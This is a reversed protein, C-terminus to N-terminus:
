KKFSNPYTNYLEEACDDLIKKAEDRTLDKDLYIKQLPAVLANKVENWNICNPEPKSIDYLAKIENKMSDSINELISFKKEFLETRVPMWVDTVNHKAEIKWVEELFSEDYGWYTYVDFAAKLQEKTAKPNFTVMNGGLLSVAGDKGSKGPIGMIGFDEQKLDYKALETADFHSPDAFGFAAKGTKIDDNNKSWDQLIDKQTVGHKWILENLYMAADVGATENFTLKFTGDKNEKVMEGGGSWVWATFPWACWDKGVIEYGFVSSDATAIKKTVNAFEEWSTPLNDKDVKGKSMAKKNYITGMVTVNYPIAYWKEDKTIADDFKDFVKGQNKLEWDKVFETIDAITGNQIRTPIDVFPLITSATPALGALLDRDYQQRYDSSPIMIEEEITIHPFKEKAKSIMLDHVEIDAKTADPGLGIQLKITVNGSSSGTKNEGCGTFLTFVMTLVMLPILIKKIMM